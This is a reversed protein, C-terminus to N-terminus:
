NNGDKMVYNSILSMCAFLLTTVYSKGEAQSARANALSSLSAFVAIWSCPSLSFDCSATVHQTSPLVAILCRISLLIYLERCNTFCPPVGRLSSSAVQLLPKAYVYRYPIRRASFGACSNSHLALVFFSSLSCRVQGWDVPAEDGNSPTTV